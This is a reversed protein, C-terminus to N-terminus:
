STELPKVKKHMIYFPWVYKLLQATYVSTFVPTFVKKIM